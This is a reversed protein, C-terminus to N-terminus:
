GGDHRSWCVLELDGIDAQCSKAAALDLQSLILHRTQHSSPGFVGLLLWQLTSTNSSAKVHTRLEEKINNSEMQSNVYGDLGSDKDLGEFEESGLQCPRTTIDEGGLVV